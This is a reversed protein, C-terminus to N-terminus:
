ETRLAASIPAMAVTSARDQLTWLLLAALTEERLRGLMIVQGDQAARFAAQDMFRRIVTADQQNADFDRFVIGSPVGDRAALKQVTNLGRNQTVFGHGTQALASAVQRGADSTTQVGTEAGELVGLVQPLAELALSLNVEADGATAGAPLDITALVEFGEARYAAMREAADPLLADVALSVPYPLQRLAALGTAADTLDAGDDMLVVAMVPKAEPNDFPAAYRDVPRMDEPADVPADGEAVEPVDADSVPPPDTLTPLRNVRVSGDGQPLQQSVVPTPQQQEEPIPAEADGEPEIVPLPQTRRSAPAPAIRTDIAVETAAEPAPQPTQVAEDAAVEAATDDAVSVDDAGQPAALGEVPAPAPAAAESTVEATEPAAETGQQAPPEPAVQEVTPSEPLLAATVSQEPAASMVSPGGESLDETVEPVPQPDEETLFATDQTEASPSAPQAPDASISPATALDPESTADPTSPTAPVTEAAQGVPDPADGEEFASTQPVPRPARPQAPETSISLNPETAPTELSGAGAFAVAPAQTTPTSIGSIANGQPLGAGELDTATGTQPVAAPALADSALGALTDPEPPVDAAGGIGAVPVQSSGLRNTPQSAGSAATARDQGLSAQDRVGPPDSLASVLTVACLSVGTGWLVGKIFGRAM